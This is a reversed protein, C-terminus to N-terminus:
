NPPNDQLVIYPNSAIRQQRKQKHTTEIDKSRAAYRRKQATTIVKHKHFLHDLMTNNTFSRHDKHFHVSDVHCDFCYWTWGHADKVGVKNPRALNLTLNKCKRYHEIEASQDGSWSFKQECCTCFNM